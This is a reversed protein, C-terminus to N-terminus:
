EVDESAGHQGESRNQPSKAVAGSCGNRLDNSSRKALAAVAAADQMTYRGTIVGITCTAMAAQLHAESDSHFPNGQCGRRLAEDHARIVKAKLVDPIHNWCLPCFPVSGGNGHGSCWPSLCKLRPLETSVRIHEEMMPGFIEDRLAQCEACDDKIPIDHDCIGSPEPDCSCLPEPGERGAYNRHRTISCDDNHESM